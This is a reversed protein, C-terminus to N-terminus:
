ALREAAVAMLARHSWTAASLGEARMDANVINAARHWKGFPELSNNRPIDRISEDFFNVDRAAAAVLLSAAEDVLEAPFIIYASAQVGDRVEISEDVAIMFNKFNASIM